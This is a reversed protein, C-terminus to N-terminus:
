AEETLVRTFKKNCRCALLMCWVMVVRYMVPLKLIFMGFPPVSDGEEVMVPANKKEGWLVSIRGIYV